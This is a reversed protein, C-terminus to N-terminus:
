RILAVKLAARLQERGQGQQQLLAWEMVMRAQQEM